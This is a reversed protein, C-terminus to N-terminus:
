MPCLGDHDHLLDKREGIYQWHHMLQAMKTQQYPHYKKLAQELNTSAILKM